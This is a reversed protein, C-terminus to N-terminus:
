TGSPTRAAAASSPMATPAGPGRRASRPSCGAAHDLRGRRHGSRRELEVDRLPQNPQHARTGTASRDRRTDQGWSWVANSAGMAMSSCGGAAIVQVNSLGPVIQPLPQSTTSGLGLQGQAHVGWAKVTGDSCRWRTDGAPPSRPPRRRSCRTPRRGTRPGPSATGSRGM